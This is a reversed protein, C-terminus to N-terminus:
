GTCLSFFDIKWNWRLIETGQWPLQHYKSIDLVILVMANSIAYCIYIHFLNVSSLLGWKIDYKHLFYSEIRVEIDRAADPDGPHSSWPWIRWSWRPVSWWRSVRCRTASGLIIVEMRRRSGGGKTATQLYSAIGVRGDWWFCHACRKFLMLSDKQAKLNFNLSEIQALLFWFIGWFFYNWHM